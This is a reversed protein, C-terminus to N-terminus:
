RIEFSKAEVDEHPIDNREVHEVRSFRPGAGLQAAFQLLREVDGAAIVEVRGDPLNRVWGRLGLREGHRAAFWRFGVGQVEGAILWRAAAQAV